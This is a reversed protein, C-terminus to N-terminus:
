QDWDQLLSLFDTVAVAGDRDVDAVCPDPAGPCTGWAKLLALFDVIGVAGDGDLDTAPTVDVFADIEISPVLRPRGPNSVRVCCISALGTSALDIGTGGGSGDYLARVGATDLGLFDFIDLIGPGTTTDCDAYCGGGYDITVTHVASPGNPTTVRFTLSDLGRAGPNPSYLAYPSGDDLIVTAQTPHTVVAYAADAPDSDFTAPLEVLFPADPLVRKRYDFAVPATVGAGTFDM